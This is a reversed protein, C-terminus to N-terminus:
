DRTKPESSFEVFDSVIYEREIQENKTNIWSVTVKVGSLARKLDDESLAKTYIVAEQHYMAFNESQNDQTFGGGGIYRSIGDIENLVRFLNFFDSESIIIKRDKVSDDHEMYFDFELMKFDNISGKTQDIKRYEHESIPSIIVEIEINPEPENCAVLIVVCFLVTIILIFKKM